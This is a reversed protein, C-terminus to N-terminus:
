KNEAILTINEGKLLLRGLPKRAVTKVNVEFSDVLVVNMFEDFGAIVGGLRIDNRDYLWVIVSTKHQLFRFLLTIPIIMVRDGGFGVDKKDTMRSGQGLLKYHIKIRGTLMRLLRWRERGHRVDVLQQHFGSFALPIALALKQYM